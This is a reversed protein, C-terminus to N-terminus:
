FSLRHLLSQHLHGMSCVQLVPEVAELQVSVARQVFEALQEPEVQESKAQLEHAVLQVPEAQQGCLLPLAQQESLLPLARQVCLLPEVQQM